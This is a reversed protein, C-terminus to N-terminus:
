SAKACKIVEQVEKWRPPSDECQSGLDGTLPIDAPLGMERFRERDKHVGELYELVRWSEAETGHSM